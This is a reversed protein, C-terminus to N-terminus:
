SLDEPLIVKILPDLRYGSAQRSQVLLPNSPRRGHLEEYAAALAKRCRSVAKRINDKSAGDLGPIRAPLVYVYDEPGLAMQKDTDFQEKLGHAVKASTGTVRTLGRVAVIPLADEMWFAVHLPDDPSIVIDKPDSAVDAFKADMNTRPDVPLQHESGHGIHLRVLSKAPLEGNALKRANNRIATELVGRVVGAQRHHMELTNELTTQKRAGPHGDLIRTVELGMENMLTQIDLDEFRMMARTWEVAITQSQHQARDGLLVDTHYIEEPDYQGLGASLIAFRRDLCQSCAGCHTRLTDQDRVSTCSVARAIQPSAGHQSIRQVVETKTLWQYRNVIEPASGDLHKLLENMRTLSLPHTTRTAMTGVIQPSLPLNHSVIGNEFFSIRQAGFAQAVVFGLAAFLFSRSRQNTDRAEQGKRRALINLHAVRGPYRQALFDGLEVQRPIVKQASRHSVLVVNTKTTALVELAGAFSDLGGSFLIVEQADFPPKDAYLALYEELAKPEGSQRFEFRFSDETLFEVLNRLALAVERQSWFAPVRVPIELRFRRRWKDGMDQRTEGGRRVSGDAAFVAAAIELLDLLLPDTARMVAHEIADSRLTFNPDDGNVRVQLPTKWGEVHVTVDPM